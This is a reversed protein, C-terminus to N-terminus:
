QSPFVLGFRRAQAGNIRLGLRKATRLNVATQLDRLPVIRAKGEGRNQISGTALMALSRGMATNDPYLSFLAGKSVHALSSSFVVFRKNWAAELIMPLITSKDVTSRDQPLWVAYSPDAADIVDRYLPAAEKLDRAALAELTLGQQSAAKQARDILWDSREPNYIVVVHQVEPALAKLRRFMVDPDPTLTIGAKVTGNTDPTALVAGILIDFHKPFKRAAKLGRKGLAIVLEVHDDELEALLATPDHNKKIEYTKVPGKMEGKIGAIISLFVARYPERIDPYLVGVVVDDASVPQGYVILLGIALLVLDTISLTNVDKHQGKIM